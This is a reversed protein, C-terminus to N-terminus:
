LEAWPRAEDFDLYEEGRLCADYKHGVLNVWLACVVHMGVAFEAVPRFEVKVPSPAGDHGCQRLLHRWTLVPDSFSFQPQGEKNPDPVKLRKPIFEYGGIFERDPFWIPRAALLRRALSELNEHLSKEFECFAIAAPQSREFYVDVKAKRYALYMQEM